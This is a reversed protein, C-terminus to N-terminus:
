NVFHTKDVTIYFRVVNQDATVPVDLEGVESEARAESPGVIRVEVFWARLRRISKVISLVHQVPSFLCARNDSSWIINRWFNESYTKKM